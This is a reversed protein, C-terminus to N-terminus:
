ARRVMAPTLRHISPAGLQQMAARVETRLIELVREVGAQGFAGLGWLYPRGICIGQAGLALAKVIDTGRRFGGDILVPIRGGVAAVIEPLADITSRGNDEARGGHNSVIIGDAGNAAALSADEHALIGKLVIKMRTADRLRQVFAWTLNTAANTHVGGVDIGEFNPKRAIFDRFTPGHCTACPQTDARQLRRYSEWNQPALVDVTLVIVQCGAREARRLLAEGVDWRQTPYLQFWLPAGRAASADEVSTTAMTSLMQLHGGSRAAGAVAIEGAGHFAKNSATPALAIPSAYRTGFIEWSMDVASVDVLRRPRLQLRAFGERNARMTAEDDSGTAVYGYHAPSVNRKMVPEFDFVNLAQGPDAIMRDLMRLDTTREPAEALARLSGHAFLPSAAAFQLFQRRSTLRDPPPM